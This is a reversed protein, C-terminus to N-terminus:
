RGLVAHHLLSPFPVLLPAPASVGSDLSSDEGETGWAFAETNPLTAQPKPTVQSTEQPRDLTDAIVAPAPRARQRWLTEGVEDGDALFIFPNRVRTELAGSVQRSLDDSQSSFENYSDWGGQFLITDQDESQPEHDEKEKEQKKALTAVAIGSNEFSSDMHWQRLEEPCHAFQCSKDVCIESSLLTPCFKTRSLDPLPQLEEESHAFGCRWHKKCHGRHLFPCMKTKQFKYAKQKVARRNHQLPGAVRLAYQPLHADGAVPFRRNEVPEHVFARTPDQCVGTNMLTPYPLTRSLDHAPQHEFDGHAFVCLAGRTCRGQAFFRCLETKQCGQQLLM